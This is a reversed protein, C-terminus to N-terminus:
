DIHSLKIVVYSLVRKKRSTSAVNICSTKESALAPIHPVDDSGLRVVDQSLNYYRFPNASKTM